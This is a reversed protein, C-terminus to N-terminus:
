NHYSSPPRTYIFPFSEYPFDDYNINNIQKELLTNNPNNKQGM